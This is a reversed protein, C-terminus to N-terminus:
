RKFFRELAKGAAKKKKVRATPYKCMFTGHTRKGLGMLYPIGTNEHYQFYLRRYYQKCIANACANCALIIFARFKVGLPRNDNFDYNALDMVAYFHLNISDLLCFRISQFRYPICDDFFGLSTLGYGEFVVYRPAPVFHKVKRVVRHAATHKGVVIHLALPNKTFYEGLDGCEGGGQVIEDDCEWGQCPGKDEHKDYGVGGVVLEGDVLVCSGKRGSGVELDSEKLLTKGNLVDCRDYFNDARSNMKDYMQGRETSPVSVFVLCDVSSYIKVADVLDLLLGDDFGDLGGAITGSDSASFVKLYQERAAYYRVLAHEWKEEHDCKWTIGVSTIPMLLAMSISLLVDAIDYTACTLFASFPDDHKSFMSGAIISLQTYLARPYLCIGAVKEDYRRNKLMIINGKIYMGSLKVFTYLANDFIVGLSSFKNGKSSEAAMVEGSDSISVDWEENRLKTVGASDKSFRGGDSFVIPIINYRHYLYSSPRQTVEGDFYLEIDDAISSGDDGVSSLMDTYRCGSVDGGDEEGFGAWFDCGVDDLDGDIKASFM